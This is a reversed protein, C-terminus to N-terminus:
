PLLDWHKIREILWKWGVTVADSCFVADDGATGIQGRCGSQLDQLFAAIRDIRCFGDLLSYETHVHLHVFSM